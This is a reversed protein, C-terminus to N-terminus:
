NEANPNMPIGIDPACDHCHKGYKGTEVLLEVAFLEEDFRYKEQDVSKIRSVARVTHGRGNFPFQNNWQQFRILMGPLLFGIM